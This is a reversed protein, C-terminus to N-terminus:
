CFNFYALLRLIITRNDNLDEDEFMDFLQLVKSQVVWLSYLMVAYILTVLRYVLIIGILMNRTNM